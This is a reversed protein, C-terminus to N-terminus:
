EIWGIDLADLHISCGTFQLTLRRRHGVRRRNAACRRGGAGNRGRRSATIPHLVVLANDIDGYTCRELLQQM